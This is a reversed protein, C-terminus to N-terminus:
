KQIKYVLNRVFARPLIKSFFIIIKNGIGHIIVVKKTRMKKYGYIAVEKSTANKLHKFLGSNQLNANEVFGTKTPGPCFAKVSVGADKMEVALAESFSLVFAKTAYYVSMLAGSQFGATSCMNLITGSGKQIMPKAFLYCMQMLSNVNVHVMDTQKNLDSNVFKGYDGFGANNILVDIFIDNELVFDFIDLASDDKSLDKACVYVQIDYQAELENKISYLKGENRAVLVLTQGDKAYLKAFELGIGGSAGTILVAKKM